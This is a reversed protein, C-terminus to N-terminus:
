SDKGSVAVDITGSVIGNPTIFDVYHESSVANKVAWTSSDNPPVEFVWTGGLSSSVTVKMIQNSTNNVRIRYTDYVEDQNWFRGSTGVSDEM